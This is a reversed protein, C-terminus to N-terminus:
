EPQQHQDPKTDPRLQFNFDEQVKGQPTEKKSSCESRSANVMSPAEGLEVVIQDEDKGAVSKVPTKFTAPMEFTANDPMAPM